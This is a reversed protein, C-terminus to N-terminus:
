QKEFYGSVEKIRICCMIDKRQNNVAVGGNLQLSATYIALSTILPFVKSFLIERANFAEISDLEEFDGL